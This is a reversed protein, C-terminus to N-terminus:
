RVSEQLRSKRGVCEFLLRRARSLAVKVSGPTWRIEEAITEVSKGLRYRGDVMARVRETLEDLCGELFELRYATEREAAAHEDFARDVVDAFDEFRTERRERTATRRYHDAVRHRAIGRLWQAFDDPQKDREAESLIAVGIEQLVDDAVDRDATLALVYGFLAERHKVFERLLEESRM